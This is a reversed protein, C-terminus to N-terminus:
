KEDSERLTYSQSLVLNAQARRDEEYNSKFESLKGLEEHIHLCQYLPKFDIQVEKNNIINFENEENMVIEIPSSVPVSRLDPNQSVKAKWREQRIKMQEMSIKGVQRTVQRVRFLWEKMEKTVADKVSNQMVPISEHMHKAFEYQIVKRLHVTQLEELTRLASYYKREEVLYNVRNAMDLVHLCLQLTEVAEDINKQTKRTQVLEKKKAAVKKGSKQVDYNLDIIKNKLNVTGQRVKLLQDVSHVFEQYNSNCMREIEGEKKRVFTSLQELFAEQRGTDYISKIIPGLQEVNENESNLEASLVLSHLQQQNDSM